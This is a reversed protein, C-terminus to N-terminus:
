CSNPSPAHVPAPCDIVMECFFNVRAAARGAFVGLFWTTEDAPLAAEDETLVGVSRFAARTGLEVAPGFVSWSLPTMVGPMAEAVNATSWISDQASRRNLLGSTATVM